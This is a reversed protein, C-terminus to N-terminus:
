RHGGGAEAWAGLVLGEVHWLCLLVTRPAELGPIWLYGGEWAQVEEGSSHQAGESPNGLM